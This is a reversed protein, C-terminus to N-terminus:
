HKKGGKKGGGASSPDAPADAVAQDCGYRDFKEDYTCGTPGSCPRPNVFKNAVCVYLSKKDMSCAEEGNTDCADGEMALSDDCAFEVKNQAPVPVIGCAKPGRCTNLATMKNADCRLVMSKDSTCAYDGITRCPDGLDSVDNDCTITDGQIKCGGPGKCTEGVGFVAHTCILASKKDASCAADGPTDCGDNVAAISNDCTVTAGSQKCGDTGACTMTRFTGDPACFLGVKEDECSSQGATCKAGQKPKCGPSLAALSVGVWMVVFGYRRIM